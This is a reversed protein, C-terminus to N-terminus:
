NNNSTGKTKINQLPTNMWYDDFNDPRVVPQDEFIPKRKNMFKGQAPLHTNPKVQQVFYERFQNYDRKEWKNLVNGDIDHIPEVDVSLIKNLAIPNKENEALQVLMENREKQAMDPFLSVINKFVVVKNIKLRKGNFRVRYNEPKVAEEERPTRNYLVKISGNKLVVNEEYKLDILIDDIKFKPPEWLIFSNQFSIYNLYMKNKNRRYESIVEFLLTGRGKHRNLTGKSTRKREDYVVYEMKHIAFDGHSIYLVGFASNKPSGTRFNPYKKRFTIAYVAEGNIYTSNDRSFIHNRLLDIDFRNVFSYSNVNFNRIADHVRLISFENGGYKQLFANDVIKRSRKYDYPDDSLTDREFDLNKKYDYIQVLTTTTDIKGFGSDFVELIAENLNVYENAKLQYDRYYGVTSFLNQPYNKPINAIARQVIQMASLRRKKEGRVITEELEFLAPLLRVNNLEYVSLNHILIEKTQYGMSSIEIIDGYEKYKLPIKFSGDTNSIIGLAQNKIRISAFAIPEQTKSDILEGIIYEPQQSLVSNSVLFLLLFLLHTPLRKRM